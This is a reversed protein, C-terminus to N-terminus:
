QGMEHQIWCQCKSLICWRTSTELVCKAKGHTSFVYKRINRINEFMNLEDHHELSELKGLINKWAIKGHKNLQLTSLTRLLQIQKLYSSCSIVCVHRTKGVYYCISSTHIKPVTNVNLQRFSKFKTSLQWIYLHLYSSFLASESFTFLYWKSCREAMSSWIFHKCNWIFPFSIHFQFM